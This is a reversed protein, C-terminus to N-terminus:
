AYQKNVLSKYYEEWPNINTPHYKTVLAYRGADICNHVLVGNAYYEHDKEVTLDYVESKRTSIKTINQVVVEVARPQVVTSIQQSNKPVNCVNKLSMMMDQLEEINQNVIIQVSDTQRQKLQLLQIVSKVNKQEMIKTCLISLDKMINKIGLEVKKQVTGNPLKQDQEIPSIIELNKSIGKIRAGSKGTHKKIIQPQLLKWIKLRMITYIITRTIFTTAKQYIETIINGFKEIYTNTLLNTIGKQLNYIIGNRTSFNLLSITDGHSLYQIEKWGNQTWIKHNSTCTLCINGISSEIRYTLVDKVGNEHKLLVKKYGKSTLVLDGIEVDKIPKDGKITTILTDGVFCHNYADMPENSSSGDKRPLWSYNQIETAIPDSEETYHVDFGLLFTVGETVSGKGKAAPIMRMGLASLEDAVRADRDHIFEYNEWNPINKQVVSFIMGSTFLKEYLFCHWYLTNGKKKIGVVATPDATYGFDIGFFPPTDIELWEQYTIAKWDKFIRGSRGSSVLGLTEIKYRHQDEALESQKLYEYRRYTEKELMELGGEEVLGNQWVLNDKYTGYAVCLEQKWAEKLEIKYYGEFESEVLNFYRKILWHDKDPMNFAAFIQPTVWLGTKEDRFGRLTTILQDFERVKDNPIEQLEDIFIHTFKTKSKQKAVQASSVSVFGDTSISHGNYELRMNKDDFRNPQLGNNRLRDTVERWISDRVTEKVYRMLGIRCKYGAVDALLLRIKDGLFHSGGRGRGGCHFVIPKETVMAESAIPNIQLNIEM